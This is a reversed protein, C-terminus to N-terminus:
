FEIFYEGLYVKRRAVATPQVNIYNRKRTKGHYIQNKGFTVLGSILASDTKLQDYNNMFNEAAGLIVPRSLDLEFKKVFM